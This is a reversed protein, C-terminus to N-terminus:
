DSSYLCLIRSFCPPCKRLQIKGREVVMNRNELDTWHWAERTTGHLLFKFASTFCHVNKFNTKKWNESFFYTPSYTNREIKVQKGKVKSVWQWKKRASLLYHFFGIVFLFYEFYSFLGLKISM